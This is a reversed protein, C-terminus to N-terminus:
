MIEANKSEVDQLDMLMSTESEQLSSSVSERRGPVTSERRGSLSERGVSSERRPGSVSFRGARPTANNFFPISAAQPRDM